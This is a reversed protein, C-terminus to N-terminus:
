NEEDKQKVTFQNENYSDGSLWYILNRQNSFEIINEEPDSSLTIEQNNNTPDYRWSWNTRETVTYEGFPVNKITVRGTGNITVTIKFRNPGAVDFIFSQNEDITDWGTKTITLDTFHQLYTNVVKVNSGGVALTGSTATGEVDNVTTKYDASLNGLTETVTYKTGVPINEIVATQGAKLQITDGSKIMGTTQGINYSYQTTTDTGDGIVVTFNFTHDPLVDNEYEKVVQKTINLTAMRTSFQNEFAVVPAALAEMEGSYTVGADGNVKTAYGAVNMETVTFTGAPFATFEISEGNGLTFTSGNAVSGSTGDSKAYSFPGADAADSHITFTFAENPALDNPNESTVTKSVTLTGTKPAKVVVNATDEYTPMNMGDITARNTYTADTIIQLDPNVQAKIYLQRSFRGESNYHAFLTSNFPQWNGIEGNVGDISMQVSGEVFVGAPLIDQVLMDTLPRDGDNNVNIKFIVWDGREVTVSEGFNGTASTGAAVTKILKYDLNLVLNGGIKWGNGNGKDNVGFYFGNRVKIEGLKIDFVGGYSSTSSEYVVNDEEDKLTLKSFKKEKIEYTVNEKQYTTTDITVHEFKAEAQKASTKEDFALLFHAINNEDYYVGLFTLHDNTSDSGELTGPYFAEVNHIEYSADFVLVYSFSDMDFTVNGNEDVQFPGLIEPTVTGDENEHVHYVLVNEGSSGVESVGMTVSVSEDPQYEAGNKVLSIDMIKHQAPVGSLSPDIAMVDELKANEVSLSTGEPLNGSVQVGTSEDTLTQETKSESNLDFTVYTSQIYSYPKDTGEFIGWNETDLMYWTIGDEGPFTYQVTFVFDSGFDSADFVRGSEPDTAPDCYLTVPYEIFAASKNVETFTAFCGVLHGDLQGCLSCAALAVYQSCTELHGEVQGCEACGVTDNGETTATTEGTAEANLTNIMNWSCPETHADFEGCETCSEVAETPTMTEVVVDNGSVDTALASIPGFSLMLFCLLLATVRKTLKM